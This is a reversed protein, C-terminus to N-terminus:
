YKKGDSKVVIKKMMKFMKRGGVKWKERKFVNVYATSIVSNSLGM